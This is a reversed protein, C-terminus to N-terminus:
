DEQKRMGQLVTEILKSFMDIHANNVEHPVRITFEARIEPGGLPVQMQFVHSDRSPTAPEPETPQNVRDRERSDISEPGVPEEAVPTAGPSEVPHGSFEFTTRLNTVAKRAAVDTYGSRRLEFELEHDSPLGGSSYKELLGRFLPPNAAAQRILEDRESSEPRNDRIISVALQSLGMKRDSGRGVDDLLGFQKLTSVALIGSGTKGRFGWAAYAAEWSVKHEREADYLAQALKLARELSFHPYAPSKEKRPM